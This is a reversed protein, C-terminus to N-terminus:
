MSLARRAGSGRSGWLLGSPSEWGAWESPGVDVVPGGVGAGALGFCHQVEAGRLEAVPGVWSHRGM